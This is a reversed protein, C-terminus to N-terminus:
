NTCRVLVCMVSNYSNYEKSFGYAIIEELKLGGNAYFFTWKNQQYHVFLIEGKQLIFDFLVM